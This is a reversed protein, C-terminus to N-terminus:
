GDQNAMGFIKDLEHALNNVEAQVNDPRFTKMLIDTEEQFDLTDVLVTAIESLEFLSERIVYIKFASDDRKLEFNIEHGGNSCIFRIGPDVDTGTVYIYSSLTLPTLKGADSLPKFL